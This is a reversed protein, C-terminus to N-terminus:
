EHPVVDHRDLISHIVDINDRDEPALKDMEEFMAGQEGPGFILLMRCGNKTVVKHPVNPPINVITGKTAEITEDGVSWTASGDVIYFTEFDKRHAHRKSEFGAPCIEECIEYTGQTASSPIKVWMENNRDYLKGQGPLTFYKSNESM